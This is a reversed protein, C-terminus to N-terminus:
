HVAPAAQHPTPSDLAVLHDRRWSVAVRRGRSELADDLSTDANPHTVTLTAGADLAVVTSTASGLYVVEAVTGEAVCLAADAAPPAAHLRVREPRIMFAGDQGVITRAAEGTFLNSTGVFGAVFATAPREYLEVPTALQEIRGQNFVAIRDSM